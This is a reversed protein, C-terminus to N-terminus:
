DIYRARYQQESQRHYESLRRNVEDGVMRALAAQDQGPQQTVHIVPANTIENHTVRQQQQVQGGSVVKQGEGSGKSPPNKITEEADGFLGFGSTVWSALGKLKELARDVAGSISGWIMDGLGSFWEGVGGWAESLTVLPNLGLLALIGDWAWQLASLTSQGVDALFGPLADWQERLWGLPDISMIVYAQDWANKLVGGISTILGILHRIPIAIAHFVLSLARGVQQGIATYGQLAEGSYEVQDFLSAFWGVADGIVGGIWSLVEGVPGLSAMFHSMGQSFGQSVGVFFAKVADWHKYIMTAVFAVAAIIGTIPNILSAVTMGRLAAVGMAVARAIAPGLGLFGRTLWGVVPALKTFLFYVKGATFLAASLGLALAGIAAVLAGGAITVLGFAKVLRPNRAMWDDITAVVRSAWQVISRFVPDLTQGYKIRLEAWGSGLVKIDGDLNNLRTTAAKGAAGNSDSVKKIFAEMEGVGAKDMLEALGASAEVGFMASIKKLREGSGMGDVAKAVDLLVRELPRMNGEADTTAVGLEDFAKKAAKPMAAMRNIASRLATGAQSDKIGVNAMLGAAAAVSEIDYGAQKAIPAVYKMAGGLETLNTNASTTVKTLIDGVRDMQDPDLGFGSLINSGIDATEALGTSTAAALDLIGRQSALIKEASFGAMALYEQAQGVEFAEYASTSADKRAADALRKKTADDLGGTAQVASMQKDFQRWPGALGIGSAMAAGGGAMMGAGATALKAAQENIRNYREKVKNLQDQKRTAADLESQHRKLAQNAQTMKQQNRQFADGLQSTNVGSARLKADLQNLADRQKITADGHAKADRQAEKVETRAAKTAAKSADHAARLTALKDAQQQYERSAEGSTKGTQKLQQEGAKMARYAKEQAKEFGGVRGQLASINTALEGSRVKAAEMSKRM